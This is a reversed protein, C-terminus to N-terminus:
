RRKWATSRAPVIESKLSRGTLAPCYCVVGGGLARAENAFNLLGLDLM